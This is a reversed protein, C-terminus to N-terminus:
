ELHEGLWKLYAPLKADVYFPDIDTGRVEEALDPYLMDLANFYNQGRRLDPYKCINDHMKVALACMEKASLLM